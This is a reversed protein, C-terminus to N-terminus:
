YIEILWCGVQMMGSVDEVPAAPVCEPILDIFRDDLVCHISQCFCVSYPALAKAFVRAEAGYANIFTPFCTTFSDVACLVIRRSLWSHISATKRVQFFQHGNKTSLWASGYPTNIQGDSLHHITVFLSQLNAPILISAFAWFLIIIRQVICALEGEDTGVSSVRMGSWAIHTRQIAKTKVADLEIVTASLLISRQIRYQHLCHYM